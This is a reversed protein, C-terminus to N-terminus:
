TPSIAGDEGDVDVVGGGLTEVVGDGAMVGSIGGEWGLV